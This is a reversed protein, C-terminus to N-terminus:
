ASAPAAKRSTPKQARDMRSFATRLGTLLVIFISLAVAMFIMLPHGADTGATVTHVTAMAFLPFSTLHVVRWLRQPLWRMLQSTFQIAVLLYMATVGWAVALPNWDTAFPVLFDVVGFQVYSDLFLGTLHLGTFVVALTGLFRHMEMTLVRATGRSVLGSAMLLGWIVSASLLVWAVIGTTRALYWWFQDGFISEIM